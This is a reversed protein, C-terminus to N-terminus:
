KRNLMFSNGAQTSAPQKSMAARANADQEQQHEVQHEQQQEQQEQQHAGRKTPYTVEQADGSIFKAVANASQLGDARRMDSEIQAIEGDDYGMDRLIIQSSALKPVAQVKKLTADATVAASQRDPRRFHARVGKKVEDLEDFPVNDAIAMVLRAVNALHAGNCGNMREAEQILGEKAAYIAEASSPNDSVVGLSSLPLRTEGAFQAALQRMYLIHDNMGPPSLQVMSPTGGSETLPLVDIANWYTKPDKPMQSPKLGLISRKPKTFVEAAIESRMIERVANDVISIVSDTIRSRGLPRDLTPRYPMPEMLPRGMSHLKRESVWSLADASNTGALPRTLVLVEESTHLHVESPIGEDDADVIVMGYDIRKHRRDWVSASALASYANVVVNQEGDAGKTTTWHMVGCTTQTDVAMDYLSEWDNDLWALHLADDNSNDPFTFYDLRSLDCLDEVAKASWGCVPKIAQAIDDANKFALGLNTAINKGSRYEMRRRNNAYRNVWITWLKSVMYAEKDTLGDGAAKTPLASGVLIDSNSASSWIQSDVM